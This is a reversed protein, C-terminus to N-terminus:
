LIIKPYIARTKDDPTRDVVLKNSVVAYNGGGYVDGSVKSGGMIIVTSEGVAGSIANATTGM